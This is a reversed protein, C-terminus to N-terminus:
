SWSLLVIIYIRCSKTAELVQSLSHKTSTCPHTHDPSDTCRHPECCNKKQVASDSCRYGKQETHLRVRWKGASLQQSSCIRQEARRSTPTPTRVAHKKCTFVEHHLELQVSHLGALLLRHPSSEEQVALLGTQQHVQAKRVSTSRTVVGLNIEPDTVCPNKKKKKNCFQGILYSYWNRGLPFYSKCTRAAARSYVWSQLDCEHLYALISIIQLCTVCTPNKICTNRIRMGTSQKRVKMQKNKYVRKGPWQFFYFYTKVSSCDFSRSSFSEITEAWCVSNLLPHSCITLLETKTEPVELNRTGKDTM